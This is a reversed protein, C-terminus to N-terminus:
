TGYWWRAWNADAREFRREGGAAPQQWADTCTGHMVAHM